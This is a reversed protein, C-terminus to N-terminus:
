EKEKFSQPLTKLSLAALEKLAQFLVARTDADLHRVEVLLSDLYARTIVDSSTSKREM